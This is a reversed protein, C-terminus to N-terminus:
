IYALVYISNSKVSYTGYVFCTSQTPCFLHTCHLSHPQLCSQVRQETDGAKGPFMQMKPLHITLGNVNILFSWMVDATTETREMNRESVWFVWTLSALCFFTVCMTCNLLLPCGFKNPSQWNVQLLQTIFPLPM